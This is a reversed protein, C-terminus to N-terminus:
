IKLNNKTTENATNPQFTVSVKAGEFSAQLKGSHKNDRDGQSTIVGSRDTYTQEVSTYYKGKLEVDIPKGELLAKQKTASLRDFPLGIKVLENKLDMLNGDSLAKNKNTVLLSNNANYVQKIEHLTDANVISIRNYYKHGDQALNHNSALLKADYGKKVQEAAGDIGKPNNEITFSKGIRIEGSIDEQLTRVELFPSLKKSPADLDFYLLKDKGDNVPYVATAMQLMKVDNGADNWSGYIYMGKRLADSAHEGTVEAYIQLSTMPRDEKEILVGESIGNVSLLNLLDYVDVKGGDKSFAYREQSGDPYFSFNGNKFNNYYSDGANPAIMWEKAEAETNGIPCANTIDTTVQPYYGDLGSFYLGKYLECYYNSQGAQNICKKLEM